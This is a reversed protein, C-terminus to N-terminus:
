FKGALLEFGQQLMIPIIGDIGTSKYPQLSFVAWKLKDSSIVRRSVV